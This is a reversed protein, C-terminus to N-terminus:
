YSTPAWFNMERLMTPKAKVTTTTTTAATSSSTEQGKNINQDIQKMDFQAPRKAEVIEDAEDIQSSVSVTSSTLERRPGGFLGTLFWSTKPANDQATITFYPNPQFKRMTKPSSLPSAPLSRSNRRQMLKPDNILNDEDEPIPPAHDDNDNIKAVTFRKTSHLQQGTGGVFKQAVKVLSGACAATKFDDDTGKPKSSNPFHGKEADDVASIYKKCEQSFDVSHIKDNEYDSEMQSIQQTHHSFGKASTASVKKVVIARTNADNQKAKQKSAAFPFYFGNNSPPTMPSLDDLTLRHATDRMWQPTSGDGVSKSM